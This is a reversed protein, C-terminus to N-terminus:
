PTSIRGLSRNLIYPVCGDICCNCIVYENLAGGILCHLFVMHFMGVSACAEIIRVAEDKDIVRYERPFAKLWVDTGTRIVIDTEM